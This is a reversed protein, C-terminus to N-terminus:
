TGSDSTADGSESSSEPNPPAVGQDDAVYGFARYLSGPVAAALRRRRVIAAILIGMTLLTVLIWPACSTMALSASAALGLSALSLVVCSASVLVLREYLDLELCLSRLEEGRSPVMFPIEEPICWGPSSFAAQERERIETAKSHWRRPWGVRTRDCCIQLLGAVHPMVLSALAIVGIALFSIAGFDLKVLDIGRGRWPRAAVFFIIAAGLLVLPTVTLLRDQYRINRILPVLGDPDQDSTSTAPTVLGFRERLSLALDGFPEADLRQYTPGLAVEDADVGGAVFGRKLAEFGRASPACAGREISAV